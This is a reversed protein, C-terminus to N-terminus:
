RLGEQKLGIHLTATAAQIAVEDKLGSHAKVYGLLDFYANIYAAKKAANPAVPDVRHPTPAKGTSAYPEDDYEPPEPPFSAEDFPLAGRSQPASVADAHTLRKSPPAKDAASALSIDWYPKGSPNPSRSFKLTEGVASQRDLELRALQKDATTDPVLPTEAERGQVEGVFVLKSGFKTKVENVYKVLMVAEDGVNELQLKPRESM